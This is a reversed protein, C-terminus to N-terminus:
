TIQNAFEHTFICRLCSRAILHMSLLIKKWDRVLRMSEYYCYRIVSRAYIDTYIHFLMWLQNQRSLRSPKDLECNECIGNRRYDRAVCERIRHLQSILMFMRAIIIEACHFRIFCDNWASICYMRRLIPFTMDRTNRRMLKAGLGCIAGLHRLTGYHVARIKWLNRTM